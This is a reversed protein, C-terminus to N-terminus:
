LSTLITNLKARTAPGVYGYGSNGAAAIGYKVQFKEVAAQTAAGFYTSENGPSGVGGSAVRTASDSNLIQQLTRVDTGTSGLDLGRTLASGSVTSASNGSVGVAVSTGVNTGAEGLLATWIGPDEGGDLKFISIGRLGLDQALEAKGAISQADPWDLLRFTQHSNISDAYATAASAAVLAGTLNSSVPLSSTAATSFYTLQM